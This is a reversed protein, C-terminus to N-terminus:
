LQVACISRNEYTSCKMDRVAKGDTIPSQFLLLLGIPIAEVGIGVTIANELSARDFEDRAFKVDLHPIIRDKLGVWINDGEDLVEYLSALPM